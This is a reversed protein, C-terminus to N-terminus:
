ELVDNRCGSPGTVPNCRALSEGPIEVSYDSFGPQTSPIPFDTSIFQAGSALAADRRVTDGSRAEETDTDARTRVLYGSSVLDPIQTPSALPDNVKVFAADNQGPSSNTFMVRGELSPHGALYTTREAGGNDLAFLVQGRLMGLAPWGNSLVSQELTAHAGRQDDPSFIKDESFIFRIEADLADFDSAEFNAPVPITELGMEGAAASEAADAGFAGSKVEVLVMVPLHYPNANSWSKLQQLCGGLSYCSTEFDLHPIHLVKMGAFLLPLPGLPNEGVLIPGLRLFFEGGQPDAFIDLEIQRIGLTDM